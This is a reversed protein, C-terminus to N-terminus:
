CISPSLSLVKRKEDQLPGKMMEKLVNLRGSGKSEETPTLSYLKSGGRSYEILKKSYLNAM